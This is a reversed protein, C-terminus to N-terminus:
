FGGLLGDYRKCDAIPPHKLIPYAAADVPTYLDDDILRYLINTIASLQYTKEEVALECACVLTELDHPAGLM